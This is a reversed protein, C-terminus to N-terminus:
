KGGGFIDESASTRFIRTGNFTTYFYFVTIGKFTYLVRGAQVIKVM